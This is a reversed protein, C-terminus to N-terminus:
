FFRIFPLKFPNTKFDMAFIRWRFSHEFPKQYRYAVVGILNFITNVRDSEGGFASKFKSWGPLIGGGVELKSSGKGNLVNGMVPFTVISNEGAGWLDDSSWSGFGIRGYFNSTLKREVNLSYLGGNGLLELYVSTKAVDAQAHGSFCCLFFLPFLFNFTKM